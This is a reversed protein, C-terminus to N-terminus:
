WATLRSQTYAPSLHQGTPESLRTNGLLIHSTSAMGRTLEDHATTRENGSRSVQGRSIVLSPEPGELYIFESICGGLATKLTHRGHAMPRLNKFHIYPGHGLASVPVPGKTLNVAHNRSLIHSTSAMGRTLENHAM